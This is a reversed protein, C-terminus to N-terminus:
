VHSEYREAALRAMAGSAEMRSRLRAMSRALRSKVTGQACGLLAAMEAESLSLFYRSTIVLRDDDSLSEIADLLAQRREDELACEEPTPARSVEGWSSSAQLTLRERRAIRKRQNKAENAMIKLLWPRFPADRRFRPLANYAKIFGEQAVDEAAVADGTILYAVRVALDQYRTVLAGFADVDGQAAMAVLDADDHVGM